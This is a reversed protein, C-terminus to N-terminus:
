YRGTVRFFFETRDRDVISQVFTDISGYMAIGSKRVSAGHEYGLSATLYQLPTYDLYTMWGYSQKWFGTSSTQAVYDSASDYKRLWSSELGIGLSFYGPVFPLEDLAYEAYWGVMTMFKKNMGGKLGNQEAFAFNYYRGSVRAGVTLDEFLEVTERSSLELAFRMDQALSQRSMPLLVSLSQKTYLNGVPGYNLAVPRFYTAGLKLDQLRFSSEGEDVSFRQEFPLFGFASLGPLMELTGGLLWEWRIDNAPDDDLLAASRLESGIFLKYARGGVGPLNQMQRQTGNASVVEAADSGTTKVKSGAAMLSGPAVLLLGLFGMLITRKSM